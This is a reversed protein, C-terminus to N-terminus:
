PSIKEDDDSIQGEYGKNLVLRRMMMMLSKDKM